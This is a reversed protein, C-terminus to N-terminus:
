TGSEEAIKFSTIVDDCQALMTNYRDAYEATYQVDTPHLAVVTYGDYEGILTYDPFMGDSYSDTEIARITFLRGQASHLNNQLEYFSVYGSEERVAFAGKWSGPLTLEFKLSPLLYYSETYAQAATTTSASIDETTTTTATTAATTSITTAATSTTTTDPNDTHNCGCLSLLILTTAAACICRKTM